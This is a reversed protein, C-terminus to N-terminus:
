NNKVFAHELVENMHSVGVIDLNARINEPIDSLDGLNERPIIVKRMRYRHAAILKEKLGGIKLVNGRLTIEGTMAVDGYISRGTVVSYMATAVAIGASPGDKPTAGEPVHVHMDHQQFYAIDKVHDEDISKAKVLSWAARISEKMVKGLSGTLLLQAKGPYVLTEIKLIEGGVNTWALGNVVGVAATHSLVDDHFKEVGLIDRIHALALSSNLPAGSQKRKVAQRCIKFLMRELERVGAERTYDRIIHKMLVAAIKVEHRSLGCEKMLKPLIHKQGIAVKEDDTYGPIRIIELRDMLPAPIDLTNATTIFFVDSLDYDLELYHDNFAKNQEYDLVELLASAPDGRFDMGMKDIEDLLILPNAYNLKRLAKIIRGPMAGIYTRRHGRIEAEDRVGGLSIRAFPRGLAEAVARGLSTKGVGPPGVFCLIPGRIKDKVQIQIALSELVREKVAALGLHDRELRKQAKVMSAQLKKTNNWPLSVALDLYNRVVAAEQSMPPMFELKNYESLLKDIIHEPANLHIIAEELKENESYEESDELLEQQLAKLKERKFYNKQESGIQDRVRQQIKLDVKLYEMERLMYFILLDSRKVLSVTALIMQKDPISLPLYSAMFDIYMGPDDVARLTQMFDNSIDSIKNYEETIKVLSRLMHETVKKSLPKPSLSKIVATCQNNDMHIDRLAVREIGEILVKMSGDPLKFVQIVRSLVGTDCLDGVEPHSVHTDKHSVLVIDNKNQIAELLPHAADQKNIYLPLVLRPFMVVDRVPLIYKYTVHDYQAM